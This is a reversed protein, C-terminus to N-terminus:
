SPGDQVLEAEPCNVRRESVEHILSIAIDKIVKPQLMHEYPHIQILTREYVRKTGGEQGSSYVM